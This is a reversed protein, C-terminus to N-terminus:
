VWGVFDDPGIRNPWTLAPHERGLLSVEANEDTVRGHPRAMTAPYPMFNGDVLEYKNYQVVFTGGARVYDLLRENHAVLDPRVEYARIGTVIADYRSLDGSALAAGDLEDVTAGLQRLAEAGDDGAGEIYGIHLDPAIAVPFVSARVTAPAYLPHPRIHPYDIVVYGEDYRRGGADISARLEHVGDADAPPTVRFEIRRTDGARALSVDVAAPDVRWGAPADLRLTGRMDDRAAHVTVFVSRAAVDRAPIAVVRPEVTLSVAPVVMLPRRVEGLAKDVDVYEAERVVSVRAGADLEIRAAVRGPAFPLGRVSDPVGTWSYMPGSRQTRLFYPKTVDASAPVQVRYTRRLVANPALTAGQSVDGDYQWGAPLEPAVRSVNVQRPGGNWVTVDLQFSTGPVPTRTSAVVDIVVGADLRLAEAAQAREDRIRYRLHVFRADDLADLARDLLQIQAALDPALAARVLPNYSARLRAIGREYEELTAIVNAAAGASRAHQSLTTDVRAFLSAGGAPYDGALVRLATTQPGLPESRGMDQSRHRSRSQMAIQYRSRGFLADLDGTASTTFSNSICSAARSFGAASGCATAM